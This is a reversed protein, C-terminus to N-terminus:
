KLLGKLFCVLFFRAQNIVDFIDMKTDNYRPGSANKEMIMNDYVNTVSFMFHVVRRNKCHLSNQPLNVSYCKWLYSLTLSVWSSPVQKLKVSSGKKQPCVNLRQSIRTRLSAQLYPSCTRKCTPSRWQKYQIILLYKLYCPIQCLM